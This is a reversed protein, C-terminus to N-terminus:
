CILPKLSEFLTKLNLLLMGAIPERALAFNNPYRPKTGAIKLTANVSAKSVFTEAAAVDAGPAV